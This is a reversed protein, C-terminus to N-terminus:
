QLHGEVQHARAGDVRLNEPCAFAHRLHAPEGGLHEGINEPNDRVELSGGRLLECEGGAFLFEHLHRFGRLLDERQEYRLQQPECVRVLGRELCVM